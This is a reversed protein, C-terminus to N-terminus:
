THCGAAEPLHSGRHAAENDNENIPGQSQATRTKIQIGRLGELISIRRGEENGVARNDSADEM